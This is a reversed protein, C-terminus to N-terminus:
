IADVGAAVSVAVTITYDIMIAVAAIQAIRPGFNDRAVVYAGGAKPYAKIVQFYSAAVTVLIILILISIPLVMSFAAVGIVPVLITLIEETAYASSSIVDSSLVAMATFNGLREGKLDENVLPKGLFKNKLRYIRSEPLDYSGLPALTTPQSEFSRAGRFREGRGDGAPGEEGKSLPPVKPNSEPM